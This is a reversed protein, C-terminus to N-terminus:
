VQNQTTHVRSSIGRVANEALIGFIRNTRRPRPVAARAASVARSHRPRAVARGRVRSGGPVAADLLGAARAALGSRHVPPGASPSSRLGGALPRPCCPPPPNSVYPTPYKSSERPSLIRTNQRNRARKGPHNGIHNKARFRNKSTQAVLIEAFLTPIQGWM